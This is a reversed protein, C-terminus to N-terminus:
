NVGLVIDRMTEPLYVVPHQTNESIEIVRRSIYEWLSAASVVGNKGAKGTLGESVALSLAGRLYRSEYSLEDERSSALVIIGPFSLTKVAAGSYCSDLVIIKQAPTGLATKLDDMPIAGTFDAYGAHNIGADGALIYFMGTEDVAGHGSFYLLAIDNPKADRFFEFGTLINRSNPPTGTGDMVLRQHVKNYVKGEQRIFSNVIGQVNPVAYRLHTKTNLNDYRNIGVALIWLGPQQDQTWAPSLATCILFVFAAKKM